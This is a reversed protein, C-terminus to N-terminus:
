AANPAKAARTEDDVVRSVRSVMLRGPRPAEHGVAHRHRTSTHVVQYAPDWALIATMGAYFGVLTWLFYDVPDLAASVGDMISAFVVVAAAARALRDGGGVNLAFEIADDEDQGRRDALRDFLDVVGEGIIATTTLYISLGSLIFIWRPDHALGAVVIGVAGMGAMARRVRKYLGADFTDDVYAYAKM